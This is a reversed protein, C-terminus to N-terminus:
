PCLIHHHQRDQGRHRHGGDVLHCQPPLLHGTTSSTGTAVNATVGKTLQGLSAVKTDVLCSTSADFNILQVQVNNADTRTFSGVLQKIGLANTSSNYLWNESSFSASQAVSVIQNKLETIEKQVKDKDVGPERAAVLKSKIQTLLDISTSLGSSATDTKAAALGLADQVTSLAANDSRM